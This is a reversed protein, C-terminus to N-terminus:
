YACWQWSDPDIEQEIFFDFVDMSSESDKERTQRSDTSALLVSKLDRMSGQPSIFGSLDWKAPLIISECFPDLKGISYSRFNKETEMM